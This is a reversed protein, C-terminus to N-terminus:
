LEKILLSLAFGCIILFIITGFLSKQVVSINDDTILENIKINEDDEIDYKVKVSVSVSDKFISSPFSLNEFDSITISLLKKKNIIDYDISDLEFNFIDSLKEVSQVKEILGDKMDIYHEQHTTISYLNNTLAVILLFIALWMVLIIRNQSSSLGGKISLFKRTNLLISKVKKM